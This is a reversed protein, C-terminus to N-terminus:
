TASIIIANHGHEARRFGKNSSCYSSSCKSGIHIPNAYLDLGHAHGVASMLNLNSVSKWNFWGSVTCITLPPVPVYVPRARRGGETTSTFALGQQVIEM